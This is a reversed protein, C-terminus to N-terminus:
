RAPRHHFRSRARCDSNRPVFSVAADQIGGIQRLVSEIEGAETRRGNIKFQDDQRGVFMLSGDFRLTALDGTRYLRENRKSHPVFIFRDQTLPADNIYGSALRTGGLYIEGIAGIPVDRMQKDLLRVEIGEVARGISVVEDAEVLECATSWVSAETPGYENFLRVGPLKSHHRRVIAPSCSEGAVIVKQLSSLQAPDGYRILLDYLSPLMLTDTVRHRSILGALRMVDAVEDQSAVVLTGGQCLTSFVGAISSDFWNPSVLLFREPKGQYYRERALTSQLLASHNVAVGKPLGTSGSTHLIYALSSPASYDVTDSKPLEAQKSRDLEIFQTCRDRLQRFPSILCPADAASLIQKIREPSQNPDLPVYARGAKLAGIIAVITDISNPACIGIAESGPVDKEVLERALQDARGVLERYSVSQSQYCLAVSDPSRDAVQEICQIVTAYQHQRAALPSDENLYIRAQKDTETQWDLASLPQDPDATIQTLLLRWHESMLQILQRSLRRTQFEVACHLSEASDEVFWTLDFKSVGLDSIAGTAHTEEDFSITPLPQRLVFMTNFLTGFRKRLEAVDTDSRTVLQGIDTHIQRSLDCITDDWGVRCPLPLATVGYTAADDELGIQQAIPVGIAFNPQGGYRALLVAYTSLLLSNLSVSCSTATTRLGDTLAKSLRFDFREGHDNTKSVSVRDAPIDAILECGNLWDTWWAADPAVLQCPPTQIPTTISDGRYSAAFEDLIRIISREDVAIHHFTLALEDNGDTKKCILVRFPCESNLDFRRKGDAIIQEESGGVIETIEPEIGETLRSEPFGDQDTVVISRLSEHRRFVAACALRVKQLDLSLGCQIRVQFHYAPSQPNLAQYYWIDRAGGRLPMTAPRMGAGGGIDSATVRSCDTLDCIAALAEISRLRFVDNIAIGIGLQSAQQVLNMADLSSGGISFFDEDVGVQQVGVIKRILGALTFEIPTRPKRRIKTANAQDQDTILKEIQSRNPKGNENRAIQHTTVFRSPIAAPVLQTRLQDRVHAVDIDSDRTQIIAVLQQTTNKDRVPNSPWLTVYCDDVGTCCKVATSIEGAEIRVGAIKLQDDIRGVFHLNGDSLMRVRDGTRYWRRGPTHPDVSFRKETLEPQNLYGLALGIGGIHLEGAVGAPVPNGRSDVIRIQNGTVPCGISAAGPQDDNPDIRHLTACVTTETPGYGNILILRPIQRMISALRQQSIPEVGVLLRQWCLQHGERLWRDTPEVFFPPLYGSQIQNVSTWQLLKEVDLRIENPPICLTRGFLLASFVEYISVDFGVNTWWSCRSNNPLPALREFDALLNEVSRHAVVVGNPVGTSGSTFLIYCADKPLDCQQSASFTNERMAIESDQADVLMRSGSQALIQGQRQQAADADVIMACRRGALIALFSILTNANRRGILPVMPSDFVQDIQRALAEAKDHLEGFTLERENSEIAVASPNRECVEVFTQWLNSEVSQVFDESAEKVQVTAADVPVDYSELSTASPHEMAHLTAFFQDILRQRDAINFCADNFDFLIEWQGQATRHPSVTLRRNPDSFGNHLWRMSTPMQCFDDVNLDILNLAVDFARQSEATMVGPRANALFGVTECAVQRSLDAFDNASGVDVRFPLLQMFLGIADRKELTDRGHTTAGITINPQDTMRALWGTLATAFVNFQSLTDTIQHYPALGALREILNNNERNLRVVVRTHRESGPLVSGRYFATGGTPQSRSDWWTRAPQLALLRGPDLQRSVWDRYDTKTLVGAPHEARDYADALQRLFAQGCLADSMVHHIVLHFKSHDQALRILVGECLARSQKFKSDVRRQIRQESKDARDAQDSLDVFDCRIQDYTAFVPESWIADSAVLCLIENAKVVTSFADQFRNPDITGRIDFVYHVEYIPDDPRLQQGIWILQQNVALPIPQCHDGPSQVNPTM